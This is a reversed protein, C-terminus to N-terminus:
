ATAALGGVALLSAYILWAMIDHHSCVHRDNFPYLYINVFFITDIIYDSFWWLCILYEAKNRFLWRPIRNKRFSPAHWLVIVSCCKTPSRCCTGNHLVQFHEWQVRHLMCHQRPPHCTAGLKQFWRSVWLTLIRRSIKFNSKTKWWVKEDCLKNHFTFDFKLFYVKISSQSNRFIM